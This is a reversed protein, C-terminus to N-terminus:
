AARKKAATRKGATKKAAAKKTGARKGAAKKAATPKSAAKKAATPKSASKKAVTPKSASKKAPRKKKAAAVSEQLATLLDTAGTAAPAREAVVEKGERKADVLEEVRETYTDHFREPKWDETMAEVLDVAMDLQKGKSVAKPLDGLEAVPDRIEDAFFMTELVLVPGSVRVCALYEKGRMVFTGVAARDTRDLATRLLAYSGATEDDSPGLYYSKQFHIPDIEALEVFQDIDLSRSRGPAIEDLEEREVIVYDGGGVDHGKVIDDYEVEDGTRENVRKYRIRDATGREFQHFDVEHEQTASYLRVPISVLGFSLFGSWISRAM